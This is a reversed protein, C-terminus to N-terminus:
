IIIVIFLFLLITGQVTGPGAKGERSSMSSVPKQPVYGMDGSLVLHASYQQSL